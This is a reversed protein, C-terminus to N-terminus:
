VTFMNRLHILSQIGEVLPERSGAELDSTFGSLRRIKELAVGLFKIRPSSHATHFNPNWDLSSAYWCTHSWNWEPSDTYLTLHEGRDLGGDVLFLQRGPTRRSTSCSTLVLTSSRGHRASADGGSTKQETLPARRKPRLSAPNGPPQLM